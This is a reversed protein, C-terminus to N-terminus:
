LHLHAKEHFKDSAALLQLYQFLFVLAGAAKDHQIAASSHALRRQNLLKDLALGGDIEEGCLFHLRLAHFPQGAHDGAGRTIGGEVPHGKRVPQIQKLLDGPVPRLFLFHQDQVFKGVQDLGIRGEGRNQLIRPVFKQLVAIHHQDEAARQDPHHSLVGQGIITREIAPAGRLNAQRGEGECIDVGGLRLGELPRHRLVRNGTPHRLVQLKEWRIPIKQCLDPM